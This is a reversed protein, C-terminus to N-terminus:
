AQIEGEFRFFLASLSPLTVQLSHDRGHQPINETRVKGLNGEEQGAYTKADSNLIEEWAGSLSVGVRYDRRIVPTYNLIILLPPEKGPGKRLISLVSQEHDSCDIWEFGDETTEGAHLVTDEKYLRNLDRVWNRIGSHLPKELLKWDLEGEHDWERWQGFEGGMFLLKKGPLAYMYGYLLRLNAAMQEADGKMKDLLSKKGHVVEDHSLSLVFQESWAYMMRFTLKDHAGKRFLPDLQMYELTDNMWGMDWKLDFGLGEERAPRTVHPWSTSEEAIMLVDPYRRSVQDNVDRLFRVADLNENGGHPNAVWEGEKRSYDLYLMSAVADVRLGDVHYHDLWFMASSTLFSRVGGLGYNYIYTKWDPHFGQRPDAHEYLHTGDFLALGHGDSPFHSPVWDLIVGIGKRHLIDVFRMFDQPTGFRSSPAFYGTVQYGWSGYYPHEMVPLLEVHTYEMDLVYDGLKEALATFDLHSGDGARMWSGLHVEYISIPADLTQARARSGVWDQDSWAYDLPWVMSANKAPAEHHFGFPDAKDMITGDLRSVVQFKYMAGAAVDPIFRDWIGSSSDLSMPDADPNWGNFSGIIAVSAASPAWVAFSCGQRENQVNLHAGLREYLRDHKGDLFQQLEQGALIRSTTNV